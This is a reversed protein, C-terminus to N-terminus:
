TLIIHDTEPNISGFIVYKLFIWLNKELVCSAQAKAMHVLLNDLAEKVLIHFLLEPFYDGGINNDASIYRWYPIM